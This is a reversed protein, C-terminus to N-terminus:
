IRHRRAEYILLAAAVSLNLSEATGTMPIRVQRDARQLVEDPLGDGENGLLIALPGSFEVDWHNETAYGSTALVTAAAGAAWDFFESEAATVLPIGFVSGMSAKVAAPAFPDTSDGLLVVASMGAADATRVVTGLNGPNHVRHLVVAAFDAGVTLDALTASRSRVIALLGAPGDRDSLRGFLEASVAAVRVGAARQQEVMEVAAHTRLLDPAVILTDLQWGSQVARWVPQMGEVVFTGTARRHKRDALQRVRKVIPNAASTILEPDAPM